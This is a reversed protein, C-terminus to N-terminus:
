GARPASRSTIVSAAGLRSKKVKPGGGDIEIVLPEPKSESPHEMTVVFEGDKARAIRKYYNAAQRHPPQPDDDNGPIPKSTSVVLAGRESQEEFLWAVEPVPETENEGKDPGLSLYSCHHPLKFIDWAIRDENKHYKTQKVISAWIEHTTDAGLVFRSVGGAVHFTAQMVISCENRDILAGDEAHEAFPSHVFLELGDAEATFGPVIQGANTLLHKIEHLILGQNEIWEALREPRSFIRVGQKQRLRYRAEQQIVRAEDELGEDLLVAAPVWLDRIRIRDERQYKQAHNLYFFDTAGCIHDNDLHTFVVVDFEKRKETALDDRLVTALQARKDDPDDPNGVNGFDVLLKKGNELDIRLCDANGLPFVVIRHM